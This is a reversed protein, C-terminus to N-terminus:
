TDVQTPRRMSSILMFPNSLLDIAVCGTGQFVLASQLKDHKWTQAAALHCSQLLFMNQVSNLLQNRVHSM